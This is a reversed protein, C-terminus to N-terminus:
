LDEKKKGKNILKTNSTKMTQWKRLLLHTQRYKLRYIYM